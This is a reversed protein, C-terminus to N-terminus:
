AAGGKLDFFVLDALLRQVRGPPEHYMVSMGLASAVLWELTAGRSAAWGPLLCIADCGLLQVLGRRMYAAWHPLEPGAAPNEVAFGAARLRDAEAFFAPRNFDPLGSMPGAVYVRVTTQSSSM